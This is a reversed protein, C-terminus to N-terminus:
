PKEHNAEKDSWNLNVLGRGITEDGGLQIREELNDKLWKLVKEAQEEPSGKLDEPIDKSEMRIRTARIPAYLVTDLPLYEETWLAGRVVTKSDPDLRTRTIVETSYTVFDSFADDPLIVLQEKFRNAWYPDLSKSFVFGSLQDALDSIDQEAHQFAFEELIVQGTSTVDRDSSTFCYDTETTSRPGAFDESLLSEGHVDRIERAWRRLVNASTIWAFM